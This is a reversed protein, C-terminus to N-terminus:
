WSSRIRRNLSEEAHQWLSWRRRSHPWRYRQYCRDVCSICHTRCPAQLREEGRCGEGRLWSRNWSTRHSYLFVSGHWAPQIKSLDHSRPPSTWTHHRKFKPQATAAHSSEANNSNLLKVVSKIHLAASDIVWPNNPTDSAIRLPQWMPLRLVPAILGMSTSQELGLSSRFSRFTCLIGHTGILGCSLCPDPHRNTKSDM